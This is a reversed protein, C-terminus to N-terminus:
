DQRTITPMHDQRHLCMSGVHRSCRCRCPTLHVPGALLGVDALGVSLLGRLM